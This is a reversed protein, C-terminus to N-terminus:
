APVTYIEEVHVKQIRVALLQSFVKHLQNFMVFIINKIHVNDILAFSPM